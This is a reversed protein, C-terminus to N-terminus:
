FPDNDKYPLQHPQIPQPEQNYRWEFNEFRTYEPIFKLSQLGTKGDKNKAVIVDCLGETSQGEPTKTIGYYEPRYLFLIVDADEEISGSERLDAMQPRKDSRDEVKRSLQSLAVVPIDLTKSIQKLVKTLGGIEEHKSRGKAQLLQLFDVFIIKAGKRKMLRCKSRLKQANIAAEDDIIIGYGSLEGCARVFREMEAGTMNGSTIRDTELDSVQSILRIGLSKDSTELSLIGSKHGDKALRRLITMVLATKGMSPRAGLIYLKSDQFGQLINDIDLGTRLGIPRGNEQIRNVDESVRNMTESLDRMTGQNEETVSFVLEQAKDVVDYTDTSANFAESIITNCHLILNRKITKERIIQCHYEINAASSVSAFLEPLYNKGGIRELNNQDRIIQEVTIMDIAEGRNYLNSFVEFIIQHAPKYFDAIKLYNMAIDASEQELMIAGLVGEEVDVAQPPIRSAESM